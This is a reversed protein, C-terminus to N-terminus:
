PPQWLRYMHRLISVQIRVIYSYSHAFRDRSRRARGSREIVTSGRARFPALRQHAYLNNKVSRVPRPAREERDKTRWWSQLENEKRGAGHGGSSEDVM